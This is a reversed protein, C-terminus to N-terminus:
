SRRTKIFDYIEKCFSEPGELPKVRGFINELNKPALDSLTLAIVAIGHSRAELIATRIDEEGHRGEYPDLDTPKGDTFILMAKKASEEEALLKTLHRIAPGLRTYAQPKLTELANFLHDWKQEFSKLEVFQVRKRTESNASAVFVREFSKDLITALLAISDIIVDLVRQEHIWSDTSLSNDILISIATSHRSALKSSFLYVKDSSKNPENLFRVAEDINIEQGDLLRNKWIPANFLLSFRKQWKSILAPHKKEISSKLSSLHQPQVTTQTHFVTCHSKWYKKEESSWEPYTHLQPSSNDIEEQRTALKFIQTMQRYISSAKGNSTVSNLEVEDLAPAHECLDDDGSEVRRGGEYDDATEMKEFSHMVPNTPGEKEQDINKAREAQNRKKESKVSSNTSPNSPSTSSKSALDERLLPLPVTAHLYLPLPDNRKERTSQILQYLETEHQTDGQRMELMELWSKFFSSNSQLKKDLESRFSHLLDKEWTAFSPFTNDLWNNIQPMKALIRYRPLSRLRSDFSYQINLVRVAISKLALYKILEFNTESNTTWAVEKPLLLDPGIFGVSFLSGGVSNVPLPCALRVFTEIQVQYDQLSIYGPQKKIHAQSTGWVHSFIKEIPM